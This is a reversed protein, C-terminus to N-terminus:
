RWAPWILRPESTHCKRARLEPYIGSNVLRARHRGGWEQITGQGLSCAVLLSCTRIDEYGNPAVNRLLLSAPAVFLSCFPFLTTEFISRRTEGAFVRGRAFSVVVIALNRVIACAM